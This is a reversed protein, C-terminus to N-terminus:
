IGRNFTIVMGKSGRIGLFGRRTVEPEISIQVLTELDYSSTKQIFTNVVSSGIALAENYRKRQSERDLFRIAQFPIQRAISTEPTEPVIMSNLPFRQYDLLNNGIYPMLENM